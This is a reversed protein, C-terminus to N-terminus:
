KLNGMCPKHTADGRIEYRTKKKHEEVSLYQMNKLELSGGCKKPIIFDIWYGPCKQSYEGTAPCVTKSKFERKASAIRNLNDRDNAKCAAYTVISLAVAGVLVSLHLKM